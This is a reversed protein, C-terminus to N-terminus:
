TERRKKGELKNAWILAGFGPALTLVTVIWNSINFPSLLEQIGSFGKEMWIGIIGIIIMLCAGVLWIYGFIKLAIIWFKM